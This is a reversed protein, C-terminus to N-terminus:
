DSIGLRESTDERIDKTMNSSSVNNGNWTKKGIVTKLPTPASKAEAPIM